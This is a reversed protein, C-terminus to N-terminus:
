YQESHHDKVPSTARVKTQSGACHVCVSTQAVSPSLQHSAKQSYYDPRDRDGRDPHEDASLPPKGFCNRLMAPADVALEHNRDDDHAKGESGRLNAQAPHHELKAIIGVGLARGIRMAVITQFNDPGDGSCDDENTERCHALSNPGRKIEM